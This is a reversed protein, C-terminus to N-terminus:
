SREIDNNELLSYYNNKGIIIHDVLKIGLLVGVSRIKETIEVDEKSPLPNGSPHNHVLIIAVASLLYAEKFIERPHVVSHNITGIFLLKDNIIKKATDLYVVYFHEQKKDSVKHYYYDYVMQSNILKKNKIQVKETEIRKALELAALVICAKSMGIGKINILQEYKYESLGILGKTQSLIITALNKSSINKYGTKLLIALLEETALSAVGTSVLKEYPRESLPLEKIKITM